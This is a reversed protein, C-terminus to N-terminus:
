LASLALRPSLLTLSRLELSWSPLRLSRPLRPLRLSSPRPLEAVRPPILAEDPEDPEDPEEFRELELSWLEDERLWLEDSSRSESRM